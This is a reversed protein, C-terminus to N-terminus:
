AVPKKRPAFAQFRATGSVGAFVEVSFRGSDADFTVPGVRGELASVIPLSRGWGQVTVSQEGPAFEITAELTGNDSLAAVRKKGLPVFKDLDGLFAIGSKGVPVVVLYSPDGKIYQTWSTGHPIKKGQGAIWDYVYATGGLGLSEPTFTATRDQTRPHAFVYLARMPGHDTYTFSVLPEGAAHADNLISEDTPVAPVDPKVIVGDPRVAYRLNEANIEGMRDGVGVVGASLTAILLHIKENSNFVDTFPYVGLASALRSSYFFQDWKDRTFRDESVRVTSLKDYKSSQLFHRPTGMCYQMALGFKNGLLAMGDMFENQDDIKYDATAQEDLWDQEYGFVGSDKLYTGVSMWYAPDIIVNNSMRYKQHYPSKTDIWRAHTILPLGLDKQFAGLGNPFLAPHAEYRLIGQPTWPFFHDWEGREGKPYWWSDLQMYGLSVGAKAFEDKMALLTGTYGLSSEYDYYYAAGNDTWYGLSKLTPDADNAPRTKGNLDTLARGWADFANNIGNAVVLLTKHTLGEPIAAIRPNIRSEIQDGPTHSLHAVMFDSAPSIVFSHGADDFYVWPGEPGSLDFHFTSWKGLFSLHWPVLPSVAFKPFGAENPAASSYHDSFLVASRGPYTRISGERGNGFTFSIEHYDGIGDHGDATKLDSAPTPLTGSFNWSPDATQISYHGDQEVTMTIGVAPEHVTEANLVSVPIGLLFLIAGLARLACQVYLNASAMRGVVTKPM